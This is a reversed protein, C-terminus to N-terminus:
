AVNRAAGRSAPDGLASFTSDMIANLADSGPSTKAIVNLGQSM